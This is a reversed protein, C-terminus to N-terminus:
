RAGAAPRPPGAGIRARGRRASAPGPRPEVPRPGNDHSSGAPRLARLWRPVRGRRAADFGASSSRTSVLSLAMFTRPRPVAGHTRSAPLPPAAPRSRLARRGREDPPAVLGDGDIQNPLLCSPWAACGDASGKQFVCLGDASASAGWPRAASSRPGRRAADRAPDDVDLGRLRDRALLERAHELLEEEAHRGLLAELLALVLHRAEAGAEHDGLVAVDHGVVVDDFVHVADLDGERVSQSLGLGVITPRSGLVSM